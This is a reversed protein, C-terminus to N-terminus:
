YGLSPLGQWGRENAIILMLASIYDDHGGQGTGGAEFSMTGSARIKGSFQELQMRIVPSSTLSADIIIQGGELYQQLKGVWHPKSLTRYRGAHGRPRNMDGAFKCPKFNKFGLGGLLDILAVNGTLDACVTPEQQYIVTTQRVIKLLEIAQVAYEMNKFDTAYVIRFRPYTVPNQFDRIKTVTQREAVLVASLDKTAGTAPDYGIIPETSSVVEMDGSMIEEM